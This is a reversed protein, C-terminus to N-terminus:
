VAAGLPFIFLFIDLAVLPGPANKHFHFTGSQLGTSTFIFLLNMESSLVSSLSRATGAM